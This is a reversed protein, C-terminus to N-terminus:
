RTQNTKWIMALNTYSFPARKEVLKNDVFYNIVPNEADEIRIDLRTNDIDYEIAIGSNSTPAIFTPAKLHEMYIHSTISIARVIHSESVPVSDEEDWGLELNKLELIDNLSKQLQETYPLKQESKHKRSIFDNLVKYHVEVKQGLNNANIKRKWSDFDRKYNIFAQKNFETLQIIKYNKLRLRGEEKLSTLIVSFDISLSSYYFDLMESMDAKVKKSIDNYFTGFNIQNSVFLPSVLNEIEKSHPNSLIASYIGNDRMLEISSIFDSSLGSNLNNKKEHIDIIIENLEHNINNWEDKHLIIYYFSLLRLALIREHLDVFAINFTNDSKTFYEIIENEIYDVRDRLIVDIDSSSDSPNKVLKLIQAIETTATM